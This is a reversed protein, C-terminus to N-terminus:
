ECTSYAEVVIPTCPKFSAEAMENSKLNNPSFLKKGSTEKGIKWSISLLQCASRGCRVFVIPCYGPTIANPINDLTQIHATFTRASTLRTETKLVIVDGAKPPNSKSLGKVNLGINDGAKASTTKVHGM